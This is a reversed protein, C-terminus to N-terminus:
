TWVGREPHRRIEDLAHEHFAEQLRRTVTGDGTRYRHADVAAVPTLERTTSSIFCEDFTGLAGAPIAEENVRIGLAPAVTGLLRARTIGELIGAALPPTHLEGGRVFGINSVASETIEDALNAM